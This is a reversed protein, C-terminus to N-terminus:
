KKIRFWDSLEYKHIVTDKKTRAAIVALCFAVVTDFKTWKTYDFKILQEILEEFYFFGYHGSDLDEGTNDMIFSAGMNIMAERKHPSNNPWGPDSNAAKRRDKETPDKLLFGKYGREDFYQRFGGTNREVLIPSSYYLAQKIMDEAFDNATPPRYNYFCVVGESLPFFPYNKVVTIGAGNSGYRVAADNSYADVGTFFFNRNPRRQKGTASFKCRDGEDPDFAKLWRGQKHPYFVVSSDRMGSQWEFNGRVFLQTGNSISNQVFRKQDFLKTLDFANEGQRTIWADDISQPFKRKYSLLEDGELSKLWGEHYERAATTNSYGWEDVFTDEGSEGLLGYYAPIFLQWLGSKTQGNPMLKNHDSDDWLERAKESGYKESDEVTSTLMAFGVINTGLMLTPKTVYWGEKVDSGVDMKAVEDRFFYSVYDGDVEVETSTVPYIKSRLAKKNLRDDVSVGKRKPYDFVLKSSQKTSGDDVPKLFSPLLQWSQILKDFVKKADKETKSQIPFVSEANETADWYGESLANATKSFRRYGVMDIGFTKGLVNNKRCENIAYWMDRQADIFWPNGRILRTSRGVRKNPVPIKWYQLTMYHHGTVWELKDGNYFFFGDKRRRLEERMWEPYRYDGKDTKSSMRNIYEESYYPFKRDKKDKGYNAIEEPTSPKPPLHFISPFIFDPCVEKPDYEEKYKRYARRCDKQNKLIRRDENSPQGVRGLNGLFEGM